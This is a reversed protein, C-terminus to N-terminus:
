RFYHQVAGLSVALEKAIARLSLGKARLALAQQKRDQAQAEYETRSQKWGRRKAKRRQKETESHITILEREEDSTIQFLDILYDNKPTYLPTYQKGNFEITIGAATDRTLQYMNSTKDLIKQHDWHPAVLKALAFFENWEDLPNLALEKCYRLAFFNCLWFVMPERLGDGVDGGRLEILKQLDCLRSWNLSDLTFASPRQIRQVTTTKKKTKPKPTYPPLVQDVLDNFKYHHTQGEVQNVWLVSVKSQTKQNDTGVIRLVRSVDRANTDGGLPEFRAVLGRQLAEWRPLAKKPLAEHFWKLQLGKGSDIVLSPVPLKLAECHLFVKDLIESSSLFSLTPFRYYDLDVFALGVHALNVKRRNPKTFVAQTIWWDFGRYELSICHLVDALDCLKYSKQSAKRKGQERCLTSFWGWKDMNLYHGTEESPSFM